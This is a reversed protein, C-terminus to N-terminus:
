ILGAEELLGAFTDDNALAELAAERPSMGGEYADRMPWDALDFLGVGVARTIRRDVLVLWVAFADDGDAYRTVRGYREPNAKITAAWTAVRDGPQEDLWTM